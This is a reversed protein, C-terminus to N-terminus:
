RGANLWARRILRGCEVSELAVNGRLSGKDRAVIGYWQRDADIWPYFGLFGASSFSGDGNDPDDEVWHGLSYHWRLPQPLPTDLAQQPCADPQTCVASEGLHAGIKLQGSLVRRLFQGYADATGYGGGALQPSSFQLFLDDGLLRRLEQALTANNLDGLGNQVAWWQFHGGNYYFAGEHQPDHAANSGRLPRSAEFCERVTLQAQRADNRKVCLGYKLGTHGSRMTLAKVDDPQLHGDRKEVVYAGFLWKTASALRMPTTATPATGGETGSALRAHADGIEWYFPQIAQCQEATAAVSSAAAMRLAHHTEAKQQIQKTSVQQTSVQQVSGALPESVAVSVPLLVWGAVVLWGSLARQWEKM